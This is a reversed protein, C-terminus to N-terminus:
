LPIYLGNMGVLNCHTQSLSLSRSNLLWVLALLHYTLLRYGLYMSLTPDRWRRSWTAWYRSDNMEVVMGSLFLWCRYLWKLYNGVRRLVDLSNDWWGRFWGLSDYLRVVLILLKDVLIILQLLLYHQPLLTVKCDNFSKVIAVLPYLGNGSLINYDM